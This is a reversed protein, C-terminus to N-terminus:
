RCELFSGFYLYKHISDIPITYEHELLDPAHCYALPPTNLFCRKQWAPSADTLRDRKRRTGKGNAEEKM